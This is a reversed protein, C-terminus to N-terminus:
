LAVATVTIVAQYNGAEVAGNNTGAAFCVVTDSGGGTTVSSRNAILRDTTSPGQYLQENGGAADPDGTSTSGCDDAAGWTGDAVDGSGTDYASYGFQSQGSDVSWTEPTDSVAETYDSFNTGAGTHQLAPSQSAKIFL